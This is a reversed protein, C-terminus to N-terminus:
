EAVAVAVQAPRVVREGIRFGSRLLWAGSLRRGRTRALQLAAFSGLAFAVVCVYYLRTFEATIFRPTKYYTRFSIDDVSSALMMLPLWLLLSLVIPSLWWARSVISRRWPLPARVQPTPRRAPRRPRGLTTTM